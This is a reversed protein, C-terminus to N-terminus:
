IATIEKSVAPDASDVVRKIYISAENLCKKAEDDERWLRNGTAKRWLM